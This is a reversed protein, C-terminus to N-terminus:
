TPYRTASEGIPTLATASPAITASAATLTTPRRKPAPRIRQSVARFSPASAKITSSASPDPAPSQDWKTGNTACRGPELGSGPASAGARTPANKAKPPQHSTLLIAPSARSGARMM